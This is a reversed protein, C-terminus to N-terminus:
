IHPLGCLISGCQPLFCCSRQIFHKAPNLSIRGQHKFFFAVSSSLPILEPSGGMDGFGSGVLRMKQNVGPICCLGFQLASAGLFQGGPCSAHPPRTDPHHIPSVTSSRRCHAGAEHLTRWVCGLSLFLGLQGNMCMLM